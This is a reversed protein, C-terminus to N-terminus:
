GLAGGSMGPHRLLGGGGAPEQRQVAGPDMYGIFSQNEFVGPLGLAKAASVLSFDDSAANTWPDSGLSTEVWRWDEALQNVEGSTNSRYVNSFLRSAGNTGSSFNIGWGSSNAIVNNAVIAGATTSAIRIGDGGASYISNNALIGGADASIGHSAPDDIVNAIMSAGGGSSVGINGGGIYNGYFVSGGGTAQRLCTASSTATMFCARVLNRQGTLNLAYSNANAATNTFRCGWFAADNGASSTCVTGPSSATTAASNFRLNTFYNFAVTIVFNGTTFDILPKTLANDSEIDGITTNFGRWWIPASTTGAVALTRVTTSNSYTGNRVNVRTGATVNTIAEALTWAGNAGSNTNTTGDGGGAADDRVYRDTWAM